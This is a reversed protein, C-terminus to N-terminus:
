CHTNERSEISRVKTPKVCRETCYDNKHMLQLCSLPIENAAAKNSALRKKSRWLTMPELLLM